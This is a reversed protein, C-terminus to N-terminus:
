EDIPGMRIKDSGVRRVQGDCDCLGERGVKKCRCGVHEPFQAPEQAKIYIKKSGLEKHPEECVCHVEGERVDSCDCRAKPNDVDTNQM